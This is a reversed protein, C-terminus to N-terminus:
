QEYIKEIGFYARMQQHSSTVENASFEQKFTATYLQKCIILHFFPTSFFNDVTNICFSKGSLKPFNTKFNITRINQQIVSNSKKLFYELNKWLKM